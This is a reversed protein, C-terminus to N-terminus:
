KTKKTNLGKISFIYLSLLLIGELIMVGWFTFRTLWTYPMRFAQLFLNESFIILVAIPVSIIGLKKFLVTIMMLLFCFIILTIVIAIYGIVYIWNGAYVPYAYLFPLLFFLLIISFGKEKNGLKGFGKFFKFIDDLKM